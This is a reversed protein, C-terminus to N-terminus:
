RSSARWTASGFSGQESRDPVDEGALEVAGDRGISDIFEHMATRQGETELDTGVRQTRTVCGFATSWSASM